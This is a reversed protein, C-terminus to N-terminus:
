WTFVQYFTNVEWRREIKENEKVCCTENQVPLFKKTASGQIRFESSNRLVNKHNNSMKDLNIWQLQFFM